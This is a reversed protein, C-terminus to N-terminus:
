QAWYGEDTKKDIQMDLSIPPTMMQITGAVARQETNFRFSMSNLFKAKTLM